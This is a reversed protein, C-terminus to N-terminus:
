IARPGSATSMGVRVSSSVDFRLWRGPGREVYCSEAGAPRPPSPLPAAVIQKTLFLYLTPRWGLFWFGPPAMINQLTVYARSTQSGAEGPGWV